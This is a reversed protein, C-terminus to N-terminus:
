VTKETNKRKELLTQIRSAPNLLDSITRDVNLTDIIYSIYKSMDVETYWDKAKLQPTRYVLNTSFVKNIVGDGYAKDFTELGNCFLGFAVFVFIRRAGRQKLNYAIDIISDGSSIMDDVIIIDKGTIDNGLYEHAVIPNKGDM